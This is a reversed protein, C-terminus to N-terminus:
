PMQKQCRVLMWPERLLDGITPRRRVDPELLREIVQRLVPGITSGGGGSDGSGEGAVAVPYQLGRREQQRIMQAINSDDFPMAATVMIFLVCGLSWMDYRRPDYPQGLLVEPAAYAASGCFTESYMVLQQQRRTTTTAATEGGGDLLPRAFGFDTLKVRQGDRAILVNECKIDRHAIHQGHLYAVADALQGFYSHAEADTLRGATRIRDLLDGGACLEMFCCVFPGIEVIDHVHVIHPHHLSKIIHLERPLFKHLYEASTRRADIVKCAIPASCKTTGNTTDTPWRKTASYVKSYSGKGIREGIQFGLLRLRDLLQRHHSWYLLYILVRM